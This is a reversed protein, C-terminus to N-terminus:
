IVQNSKSRNEGQGQGQISNEHDFVSNAIVCGCITQHGRFSFCVYQKYELGLVHCHSKVKAM